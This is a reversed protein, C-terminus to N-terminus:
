VNTLLCEDNGWAHSRSRFGFSRQDVRCGLARRAFIDDDGASIPRLGEGFEDALLMDAAPQGARNLRVADAM